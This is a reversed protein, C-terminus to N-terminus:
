SATRTASARKLCAQDNIFYFLPDEGSTVPNGETDEVPDGDAVGFSVVPPEDEGADPLNLSGTFPLADPDNVSVVASM